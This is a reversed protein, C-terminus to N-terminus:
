DEQDDDDDCYDDDDDDDEDNHYHNAHEYKPSVKGPVYGRDIIPDQLFMHLCRESQALPHGAIKNLFIELERQRREIFEPEFIGQDGRFPLQRLWAKGPLPPVLIKTDSREM